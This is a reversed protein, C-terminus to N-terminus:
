ENVMQECLSGRRSIVTFIRDHILSNDMFNGPTVDWPLGLPYALPCRTPSRSPDAAACIPRILIIEPTQEGGATCAPRRGPVRIGMYAEGRYVLVDNLSHHLHVPRDKQWM